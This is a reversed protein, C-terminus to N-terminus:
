PPYGHNFGKVYRAVAANGDIVFEVANVFRGQPVLSASQKAKFVFVVALMLLVAVAFWFMYQTFGVTELNGAIPTSAFSSVLENVEDGLSDLPNM